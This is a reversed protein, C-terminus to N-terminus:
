QSIIQNKFYQKRLEPRVAQWNVEKYVHTTKLEDKQVSGRATLV